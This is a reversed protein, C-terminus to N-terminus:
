PTEPQHRLWVPAEWWRAPRRLHAVGEGGCRESIVASQVEVVAVLDKAFRGIRTENCRAQKQHVVHPRHIREVALHAQAMFDFQARLGNFQFAHDPEVGAVQIHAIVQDYGM